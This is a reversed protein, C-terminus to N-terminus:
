MLMRLDMDTLLALYSLDNGVIPLFNSEITVWLECINRGYIGASAAYNAVFM